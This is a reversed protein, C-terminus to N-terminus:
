AAHDSEKVQLNNFIDNLFQNFTRTDTQWNLIFQSASHRYSKVLFCYSEAKDDFELDSTIESFFINTCQIAELETSPEDKFASYNKLESYIQNFSRM